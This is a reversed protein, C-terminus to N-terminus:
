EVGLAIKARSVWALGQLESSFEIYLEADNIGWTNRPTMVQPSALLNMEDETFFSLPLSLWYKNDRIAPQLAWHDTPLNTM